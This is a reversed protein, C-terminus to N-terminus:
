PIWARFLHSSFGAPFEEFKFGSERPWLRSLETDRFGARVSIRADHRTVSNCGLLWLGHTSWLAPTWRRPDCSIFASTRRSLSAFLTRLEADTFHHLFLNAVVLDFERAQATALWDHLRAEIVQVSLGHANLANLTEPAVVPQMDLLWLETARPLRPAIKLMLTGDGSGLELVRRPQSSLRDIARGLHRANGMWANIWQLDRRSRIARPDNPPLTDLLEPEVARPIM